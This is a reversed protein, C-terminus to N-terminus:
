KKIINVSTSLHGNLMQVSDRVNLNVQWKGFNGPEVKFTAIQGNIVGNSFGRPTQIIWQWSATSLVPKGSSQTAQLTVMRNEKTKISLPGISLGITEYVPAPTPSPQCEYCPPAPRYLDVTTETSGSLVPISESPLNVIPVDIAGVSMVVCLMLMLTLIGKTMTNQMITSPQSLM